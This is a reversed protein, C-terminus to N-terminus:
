RKFPIVFAGDAYGLELTISGNAPMFKNEGGLGTWIQYADFLDTDFTLTVTGSVRYDVDDNYYPDSANVVYYGYFGAEADYLETILVLGTGTLDGGIQVGVTNAFTNQIVECNLADTCVRFM